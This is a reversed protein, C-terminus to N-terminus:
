KENRNPSRSETADNHIRFGDLLDSHTHKLYSIVHSKGDGVNGCVLILSKGTREKAQKIKAILDDELSRHIHMYMKFASFVEENDVADSSSKKLRKLEDVLPCVDTSLFAKSDEFM